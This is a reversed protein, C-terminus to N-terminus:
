GMRNAPLSFSLCSKLFGPCGLAVYGQVSTVLMELQWSVPVSGGGELPRHAMPVGQENLSVSPGSSLVWGHLTEESDPASWCTM